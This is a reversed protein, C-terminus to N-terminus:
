RGNFRVRVGANVLRPSGITTPNTGVYYEKDFVNQAGFFVELNRNFTHSATFDLTGYAPLGPTACVAAGPTCGNALVGRANADDDYQLGVFMAAASLSVIRPNIYAIQVSGRNEPVQPLFKDVLLQNAPNETVKGQNFLYGGGIRWMEGLRYEADAQFGYIRTAGLNQRQQTIQTGVTAITVNSVPNDMHNDFYVTRVTLNRSVAFNAGLEGGVLREPGLSPNALTLVAGVRFQRYLENLTPARFGGSVSGWASVRDTFHYMVGLRPSAVTDDREPLSPQNNVATGAVLATELNHADYNRWHDVRAALTVNLKATPTYIDQLYVGSSNQTGGSIRALTPTQGRQADYGTEQSDGDVRRFDAGATFVNKLGFARVWQVMGGVNNTPVRQDLTLRGLSRPIGNAAQIALFNSRFTEDDYFIRAQLDSSDPLGVRIGGSV